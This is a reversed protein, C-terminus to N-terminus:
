DGDLTVVTKWGHGAMRPASGRDRFRYPPKAVSRFFKQGEALSGMETM